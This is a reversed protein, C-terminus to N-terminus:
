EGSGHITVRRSGRGAVNENASYRLCSSAKGSVTSSESGDDVCCSFLCSYWIALLIVASFAASETLLARASVLTEINENM